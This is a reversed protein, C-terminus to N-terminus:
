EMFVALTIDIIDDTPYDLLNGSGDIYMDVSNLLNKIEKKSDEEWLIILNLKDTWVRTKVINWEPVLSYRIYYISSSDINYGQKEM